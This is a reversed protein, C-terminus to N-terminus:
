VKSLYHDPKFEFISLPFEVFLVQECRDAHKAHRAETVRSKLQATVRDQPLGDGVDDSCLLLGFVYSM